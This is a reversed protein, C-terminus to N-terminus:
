MSALYIKLKDYALGHETDMKKCIQDVENAYTEHIQRGNGNEQVLAFNQKFM